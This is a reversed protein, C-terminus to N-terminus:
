HFLTVEEIPCAPVLPFDGLSACQRFSLCIEAGKRFATRDHLYSFSSNFSGLKSRLSYSMSVHLNNSISIGGFLMSM